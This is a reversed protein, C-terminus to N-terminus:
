RRAPNVDNSGASVRLLPVQLEEVVVPPVTLDKAEPSTVPLGTVGRQVMALLRDVADRRQRDILV